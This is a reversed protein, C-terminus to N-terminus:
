VIVTATTPEIKEDRCRRKRATRVSRPTAQELNGSGYGDDEGCCGDLISKASVYDVDRGGVKVIKADVEEGDEDGAADRGAKGADGDGAKEEM